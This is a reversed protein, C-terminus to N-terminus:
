KRAPSHRTIPDYKSDNAWITWHVLRQIRSARYYILSEFYNRTKKLINFSWYVWPRISSKTKSM